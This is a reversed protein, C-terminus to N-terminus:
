SDWRLERLVSSPDVPGRPPAVAYSMLPQAVVTGASLQAPPPTLDVPASSFQEDAHALTLSLSCAGVAIANRAPFDM